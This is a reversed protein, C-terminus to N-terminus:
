AIWCQLFMDGMAVVNQLPVRFDSWLCYPVYLAMFYCLICRVGVLRPSGFELMYIADVSFVHLVITFTFCSLFKFGHGVNCPHTCLDYVM